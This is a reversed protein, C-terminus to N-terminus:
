SQKSINLLIGIATLNAVLASGGYSIFPLPVGTLPVLAVMSSLNIVTQIGLWSTLGVALIQGFKDDCRQAIQLGKIVLTIFLSILILSGMFGLEEGIVAFISDTTVEPVYEFKQISQGLGLGLFGGSGLALLVQSIHYTFGQTDSFPNLFALIRKQRYASSFALALFGIISIPIFVLFHRLLGGSAFYMCVATLVFVTTSGLDKQLIATILTIFLILLILPLIKKQKEFISALYIVGTLKIIEAPQITIFGLNLWRHAGGGSVGLKPIFVAILLFLSLLLLPFAFKRLLHYDFNVFFVTAAIGIVVWMIQQRIFFYSDKYDRFSIAVSSDYVMVLGFILLASIILVLVLNNSRINTTSKLKLNKM